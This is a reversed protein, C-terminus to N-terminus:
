TKFFDRVCTEMSGHHSNPSRSPCDLELRLVQNLAMEFSSAHYYDNNSTTTTNDVSTRNRDSTNNSKSVMPIARMVVDAPVTTSRVAQTAVLRKM